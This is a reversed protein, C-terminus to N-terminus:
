SVIQIPPPVFLEPHNGEAMEAIVDFHICLEGAQDTLGPLDIKLFAREGDRMTLLIRGRRIDHQLYLNACHRVTQDTARFYDWEDDATKGNWSLEDYILWGPRHNLIEFGCDLINTRSRENTKRIIALLSTKSGELAEVGATALLLVRVVILMTQIRIPATGGLTKKVRTGALEGVYHRATPSTVDFTGATALLEDQEGAVLLLQSSEIAQVLASSSPAPLSASHEAAYFQMLSDLDGIRALRLVLQM